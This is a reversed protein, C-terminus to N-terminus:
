PPSTRRPPRVSLHPVDAASPPRWPAYEATCRFRGNLFEYQRVSFPTGRECGIVIRAVDPYLPRGLYRALRDDERSWTAPGDPHSHYIALGPIRDHWAEALAIADDPSFLFAVSASPPSM